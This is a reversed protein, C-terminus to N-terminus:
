RAAQVPLVHMEVWSAADGAHHVRNIAVAMETATSNNPAGTNLNRELRPFSSSTVHLRLRHGRPLTYAIARMDVTAQVREGPQLLRPAAFGERWRLRLAGEQINTARGDPWLHVLRAVLDTDPASSSFSLRAALPGAIRLDEALPASTYVLVDDRREVDAQDVPGARDAPNGTCCLPGGRSPVPDAPDYRYEDWPAGAAAPERALRGNGARGNARGDSALYWRVAQAEEPPWTRSDLWRNENLMFFQVPPLEALGDGSGRLWHDFWRRAWEDWPRAGGAVALEGFSAPGATGGEKHQCHNGPAIVVKQPVGHQQWHRALVLADGVTQDGWTNIIMAPVASRDGDDWYGWEHWRPDGPPTTLLETFGNPAPRVRRVLESVPLGRLHGATDFPAAPASDPRKAGNGVFWGFASALQPVGGEFVGFYGHRGGLSGIAGGAGSAIMAKHAPHNLRALPFQTEGLASCGFTGVRGNSWPRAVIWDLTQAGDDGADRWPLLDGESDGTGRLDQVLVAYGHSAFMLASMAASSDRLRHYPTRMLVAAVPGARRRPLYLSAALTVGDRVGIAVHHDVAVGEVWARAALRWPVPIAGAVVNRWREVAVVALALAVVAALALLTGMARASM